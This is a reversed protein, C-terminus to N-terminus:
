LCVCQIHLVSQKELAVIAARVRRLTVNNTSQRDQKWMRMVARSAPLFHNFIIHPNWNERGSNDLVNGM